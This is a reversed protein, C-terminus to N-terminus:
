VIWLILSNGHNERILLLQNGFFESIHGHFGHIDTFRLLFRYFDVSMWQYRHITQIIMAHNTICKASWLSLADNLDHAVPFYGIFGASSSLLSLPPPPARLPSPFAQCALFPIPFVAATAIQSRDSEAVLARVCPVFRKGLQPGKGGLRRNTTPCLQVFASNTHM